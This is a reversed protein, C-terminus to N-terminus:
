KEAKHQKTNKSFGPQSETYDKMPKKEIVPHAICHGAMARAETLTHADKDHLRKTIVGIGTTIQRFNYPKVGLKKETETMEDEPKTHELVSHVQYGLVVEHINTHKVLVLIEGDHQSLEMAQLPM